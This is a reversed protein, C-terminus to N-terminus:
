KIHKENEKQMLSEIEGLEPEVVEKMFKDMKEKLANVKKHLNKIEKSPKYNELIGCFVHLEMTTKDLRILM